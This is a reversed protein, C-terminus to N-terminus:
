HNTKSINKNKSLLRLLTEYENRCKVIYDSAEKMEKHGHGDTPNVNVKSSTTFNQWKDHAAHLELEKLHLQEELNKVDHIM